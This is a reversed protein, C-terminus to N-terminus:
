VWVSWLGLLGGVSFDCVLYCVLWVLGFCCGGIVLGLVWLVFWGLFLLVSVVLFGGVWFLGM